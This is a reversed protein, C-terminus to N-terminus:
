LKLFLRVLIQHTRLNTTREEELKDCLAMLEDVKAVIRKQEENPPIPILIDEWKFRNIIPTASGKSKSLLLNQFLWSNMSLNLYFTNILIPQIVNLQQNFAIRETVVASKGISGGICVMLIDGSEAKTSFELGKETLFKEPKSIDGSNNIQGPGIFPITGDYYEMNSTRPTKGTACIGLNGLRSWAWNKPLHYPIQTKDIKKLPKSKKLFGKEMLEEKEKLINKLVKIAPEDNPNNNVLKGRIALGIILERLHNIGDLSINEISKVRGKAKLGQADTWINFSNILTDIM